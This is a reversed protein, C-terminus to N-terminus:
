PSSATRRTSSLFCEALFKPVQTPNFLSEGEDAQRIIETCCMQVLEPHGATETYIAETIPTGRVDIALNLLPTEVMDRTEQLTLRELAIATTFGYLPTNNDKMAARTRRFGAVYFRTNETKHFVERFLEMLKHGGAQDFELIKDLEDIIVLVFGQKSLRSITSRFVEELSELTAQRAFNGSPDLDKLLRTLVEESSNCLAGYLDAMAITGKLMFRHKIEQLLSTKGIRRNGVFTFNDPVSFVRKLIQARGFFSGAIVPVKSHYPSLVQRGLTFRLATCLANSLAAKDQQEYAQQIENRALVAVKANALVRQMSSRLTQLTGGLVIVCGGTYDKLSDLLEGLDASTVHSRVSLRKSILFPTSDPSVRLKLPTLDLYHAEFEESPVIRRRDFGCETALMHIVGSPPVIETPM